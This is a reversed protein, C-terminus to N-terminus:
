SQTEKAIKRNRNCGDDNVGDEKIIRQLTFGGLLNRHHLCPLHPLPRYLPAPRSLDASPAIFRGRCPTPTNRQNADDATPQPIENIQTMRPPRHPENFAM